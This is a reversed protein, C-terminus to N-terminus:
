TVFINLEQNYSVWVCVPIHQSHGNLKDVIFARIIFRLRLHEWLRCVDLKIQTIGLSIYLLVIKRKALVLLSIKQGIRTIILRARASPADSAGLKVSANIRTNWILFRPGTLLVSIQHFREDALM